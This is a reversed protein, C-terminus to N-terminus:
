LTKISALNPKVEVIGQNNPFWIDQTPSILIRRGASIRITPKINIQEDLIKASLNSLEKGYTNIFIARNQEVNINASAQALASVTSVLLALGYKDWFKSDIKGAIGSRGMADAMEANMVINVGKPTIIRNWVIKLRSDGVKDLQQYYGIAKSGIPVLINRGQTAYINNEIQAIVKGGLSSDINNILIADINKDATLVRTLDVPYSSDVKSIGLRKYGTKITTQSNKKKNTNKPNKIFTRVQSSQNAEMLFAQVSNARQASKQYHNFLEDFKTTKPKPTINKPPKKAVVTKIQKTIPKQPKAKNKFPKLFDADITNTIFNKVNLINNTDAKEPTKFIIILIIVVVLLTAIGVVILIQKKSIKSQLDMTKM